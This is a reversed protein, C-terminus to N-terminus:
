FIKKELYKNKVEQFYALSHLVNGLAADFVFLNKSVVFSHTRGNRSKVKRQRERSPTVQVHVNAFSEWFDCKEPVTRWVSDINPLADLKLRHVHKRQLHFISFLRM